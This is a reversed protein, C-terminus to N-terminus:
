LEEIIEQPPLQEYRGTETLQNESTEFPRFSQYGEEQTVKLRHELDVVETLM